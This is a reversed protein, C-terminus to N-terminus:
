VGVPAPPGGGPAARLPVRIRAHTGRNLASVVELTGGLRSIQERVSFIGFGRAGSGLAAAPLDFGHGDDDVEIGVHDGDRRLSVRAVPTRAHKVVNSLLERVARFLVPAAGDELFKELGDDHFTVALAHRHNMDEVLWSLAEGLGLDYLVPPSLDFMLSRTDIVSQSLLAIAEDIEARPGPAVGERMATLKIQAASLTQGIRDHLDVAIKRREREQALTADFAMQQLKEQYVRLAKASAKKETVDRVVHVFSSIHGPADMMPLASLEYHRGDVERELTEPVLSGLAKKCPCDPIPATTGHMVEFCKRGLLEELSKGTSACLGRNASLLTFDRALVCVAESMSDVTQQWLHSAKSVAVQETARDLAIAILNAFAAAVRRDDATFGGPKDELGLVGFVQGGHALPAVLESRPPAGDAVAVGAGPWPGNRAVVRGTRCAEVRLDRWPATEGFRAAAPPDGVAAVLVESPEGSADVRAVYGARASSAERARDLLGRVVSPSAGGEHVLKCGDLLAVLEIPRPGSAALPLDLQGEMSGPTRRGTM